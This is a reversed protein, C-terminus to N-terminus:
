SVKEDFSLEPPKERFMKTLYALYVAGIVFWSVGLMFAEKSLSTWLWLCLVIGILPIVLYLISDKTSRRKNKFFYHVIVSIHVITFAALAGFSIFSAVTDLSFVLSSLALLSVIVTSYVPTRYRPSIYGFIKKPLITDRGMAFLLRSVSAHSSTASAFCGLIYGALFMAKFLNGGIFVAIQLPASDPDEFSMYDPYVMQGIYSVIIFLIGGIITVLFIAKPINKKANVTEESLTTVADFGLFSLCLIAAGAFVLSPSGEPNFFPLTSFLTGTGGGSLITKVSLVLFFAIVIIQFAILFFNVNTVVKIGRINIFTVILIALIVWVWNPVSPFEANLYIGIVLYNIMPLFLYDLLLIWGTFFGVHSNLSKQAYTYASGTYPFAKVMRGYSYATFLMTLLTAIYAAPLMGLTLQSVIGYTTFVTMPVMYALGFLVVPFLTLVQKFETEAKM